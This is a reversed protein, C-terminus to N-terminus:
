SGIDDYIMYILFYMNKEQHMCYLIYGNVTEKNLDDKNNPDFKRGWKTVDIDERSAIDAPPRPM